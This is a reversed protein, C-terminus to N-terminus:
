RDINEILDNDEYDNQYVNHINMNEIYKHYKYNAYSFRHNDILNYHFIRYDFSSTRFFQHFVDIDIIDYLFYPKM